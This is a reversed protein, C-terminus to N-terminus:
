GCSLPPHRLLFKSPFFFKYLNDEIELEGSFQLDVRKAPNSSLFLRCQDFSWGAVGSVTYHIDLLGLSSSYNASSKSWM